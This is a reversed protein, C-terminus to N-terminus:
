FQLWQNCLYNEKLYKNYKGLAQKSTLTKRKGQKIQDDIFDLKRKVLKM